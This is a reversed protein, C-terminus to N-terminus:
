GDGEGEVRRNLIGDIIVHRRGADPQCAKLAARLALVTTRTQALEALADDRQDVIERYHKPKIKM